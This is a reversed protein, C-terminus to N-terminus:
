QDEDAAGEQVSKTLAAPPLKRDKASEANKTAHVPLDFFDVGIRTLHSGTFQLVRSAYNARLQGVVQFEEAASMKSRFARGRQGRMVRAARFTAVGSQSITVKGAREVFFVEPAPNLDNVFVEFAFQENGIKLFASRGRTAVSIAREVSIVPTKLATVPRIPNMGKMWPQSGGPERGTLDCSPSVVIWFDNGQRFVTGTTVRSGNFSETSLFTNLFFLVENAAPVADLHAFASARKIANSDQLETHLTMKREALIDRAFKRLSRDGSIKNRVTEVIRDVTAEVGAEEDSGDGIAELLYHSLGVQLVPDSFSRPDTALAELELRNQIESILMQLFNPKWDVLAEHLKAFIHGAEKGRGSEAKNVIAIFCGDCQLWHPSNKAFKGRLRRQTPLSQKSWKLNDAAQRKTVHHRLFTEVIAGVNGPAGAAKLLDILEKKERGIAKIGNLMFEALAKESPADLADIDAAEWWVQEAPFADLTSAGDCLDPRLNAAVDLWVENLEKKKTYVIITNFHASEALRRIIHLSKSSDAETDDLHLDLVILDCKRMREVMNLDGPLFTNEVDCPLHLKRFSRYLDAARDAEKFRNLHKGGKHLDSFTPFADDVLFVSRLGKIFTQKVAKAYASNM